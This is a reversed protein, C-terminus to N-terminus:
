VATEPAPISLCGGFNATNQFLACTGFSKDCGPYATFSDGTSIGFPFPAILTFIGGSWSRVTRAYGESAGSTMVVRGLAYNGSGAPAAISSGFQNAAPGSSAVTGNMAFDAAALTCGQDFLTHVCGAQFLNRPLLNTLKKLHSYITIVAQSRGVDLEGVTGYFVTVMGTPALAAGPAPWAAAVARDVQVEANDLAGAQAAALWPQSGIADPFPTGSLPDVLRPAVVVQWTDVDLGAKYHARAKAKAQDFTPGRATWLTGAASVDVPGASYFLESVGGFAGALRFTYCDVDVFARTALLAATAGASVEYWPTKM